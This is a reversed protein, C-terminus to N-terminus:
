HDGSGSPRPSYLPRQSGGPIPSDGPEFSSDSEPSEGAEPSDTPSASPHPSEGPSSSTQGGSEEPSETESASPTPSPGFTPGPPVPRAPAPTPSPSATVTPPTTVPGPAFLQSAALATTGGVSAVVLLAALVLAFSQGRIARPRGAGFAVRGADRLAGLFGIVSRRRLSQRAALVPEPRPEKAIASSVRDVFDPSPRAGPEQALQELEGAMAMVAAMEAPDTAPGDTGILEDAGFPRDPRKNV